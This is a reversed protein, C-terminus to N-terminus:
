RRQETHRAYFRDLDRQTPPLGTYIEIYDPIRQLRIAVDEKHQMTIYGIQVLYATRARVDAAAANYGFRTFIASLAEIRLRDAERVDNLIDESQIAWSRVAFEFRADFLKTDLWCDFVNLMAEVINEAYAESQRLIAGTNKDRWLGILATLLAERDEFFWYFSTRSLGLRKALPQVKVADVGSEM